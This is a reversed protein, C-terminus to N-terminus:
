QIQSAGLSVTLYPHSHKSSSGVFLLYGLSSVSVTGRPYVVPLISIDEGGLVTGEEEEEDEELEDTRYVTSHVVKKLKDPKGGMWLEDVFNHCINQEVGDLDIAHM